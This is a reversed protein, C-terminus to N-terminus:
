FGGDIDGRPTPIITKPVCALLSSEEGGLRVKGKGGEKEIVVESM